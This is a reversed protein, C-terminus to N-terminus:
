SCSLSVQISLLLTIVHLYGGVISAGISTLLALPVSTAASSTEEAMHACSDYGACCAGWNLSQQAAAAARTTPM